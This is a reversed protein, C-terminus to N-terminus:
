WFFASRYLNHNRRHSSLIYYSVGSSSPLTYKDLIAGSIAINAPGFGLGIVDYVVDSANPSSM